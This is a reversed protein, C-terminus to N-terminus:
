LNRAGIGLLIGGPFFVMTYYIDHYGDLERPKATRFVRALSTAPGLQYSDVDQKGDVFLALDSGDYSVLIDRRKDVAFVNPIFWALLSHQASLPTRFWLVLAAIEQRIQM